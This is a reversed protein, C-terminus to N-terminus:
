WKKEQKYKLELVKLYNTDNEILWDFSVKWSRDNEGMLFKQKEIATYIDLNTFADKFSQSGFRKKLKERRKPSLEKVQSLVPYKLCFKNWLTLTSKEFDVYATNSEKSDMVERGVEKGIPIIETSKLQSGNFKPLNSKRPRDIKQHNKLSNIMMYKRNEAEYIVIKKNETLEKILGEINIKDNPFVKSKIALLDYEIVGNDDVFNWLGIYFLRADRSLRLMDGDSWFEPKITRIRAM